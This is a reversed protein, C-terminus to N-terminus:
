SNDFKRVISFDELTGSHGSHKIHDWISLSSSSARIGRSKHLGLREFCRIKLNRSTRGYYTANCGSCSHKYIVNSCVLPPFFDTYKFLLFLRKSAKCVFQLKVDPYHSKSLKTISKCIKFSHNGLFPIYFVMRQKSQEINHPKNPSSFRGNLVKKIVNDIMRHAYSNNILIHIIKVLETHFNIYSSCINFARFVLISILNVKYKTPSLTSFETYLGTPKRYLSTTFKSGDKHILVDLFPLSNNDEKEVTFKIINDHSNIHDLFPNVHEENKFLCFTDDVFRRYISPQCHSPCDDLFKKELACTFLNAMSLGLPSGMAVGDIQYYLKGDFVSQNDKVAFMCLKRFSPKDFKCGNHEIIDRNFFIQNVCLDRFEDLTLNIFLSTVEFSAM